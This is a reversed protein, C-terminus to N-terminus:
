MTESPQLGRLAMHAAMVSLGGLKTILFGNSHLEDTAGFRVYFSDPPSQTQTAEKGQDLAIQIQEATPRVEIASASVHLLNSLGVVGACLLM